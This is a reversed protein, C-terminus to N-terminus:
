YPIQGVFFSLLFKKNKEFFRNVFALSKAIMIVSIIIM